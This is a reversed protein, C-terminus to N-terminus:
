TPSHEGVAPNHEANGASTQAMVGATARDGDPTHAPSSPLRLVSLIRELDDMSAFDIVVRGKRRGLEVQVRTDLLDSLCGALLDLQAPRSRLTTRRQPRRAAEGAAIVEEVARVSLGETVIRTALREQAETEAVGLLARAHGATLVGAAVRRQVPPALQLLRLTNTVQTRSKGIRRAVEQHTAGFDDLLQAYAAAEELPNLQERHLNELLADRLMDDDATERVIAPVRALGARLCARWRREGMVLQYRGADIPRVVIPQLLGVDRISGALEDLSEDDVGQRPQRPNPSIAEIPLERFRVGAFAGFGADGETAPILAGLGRGLGGVRMTM